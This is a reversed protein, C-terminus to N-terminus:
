QTQNPGKLTTRRQPQEKHSKQTTTLQEVAKIYYICLTEPKIIPLSFGISMLWVGDFTATSLSAKHEGIYASPDSPWILSVAYEASPDLGICRYRSPFPASPTALIALAFLAESQDESIIAWAM